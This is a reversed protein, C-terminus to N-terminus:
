HVARHLEVNFSELEKFSLPHFGHLALILSDDDYDEKDDNDYKDDADDDDSGDGDDDDVDDRFHSHSIYLFPPAALTVQGRSHRREDMVICQDDDDDAGAGDFFLGIGIIITTIIIITSQFIDLFTRLTDWGLTLVLYIYIISIYLTIKKM